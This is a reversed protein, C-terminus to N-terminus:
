ARRSPTTTSSITAWTRAVGAGPRVPVARVTVMRVMASDRARSMGRSGDSRLSAVPEGFGMSVVGAGGECASPPAARGDSAPPAATGCPEPLPAACERDLAPATGGCRRLPAGRRGRRRLAQHFAISHSPPIGCGTMRIERRRATTRDMASLEIVCLPTVIPTRSTQTLRATLRRGNRWAIATPSRATAPSTTAPSTVLPGASTRGRTRLTPRMKRIVYAAPCRLAVLAASALLRHQCFSGPDGPLDM